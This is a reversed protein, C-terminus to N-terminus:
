YFLIGELVFSEENRPALWLCLFTPAIQHIYYKIM